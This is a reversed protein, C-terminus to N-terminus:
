LVFCLARIAGSDQYKGFVPTEWFASRFLAQEARAQLEENNGQQSAEGRLVNRDGLFGVVAAAQGRGM